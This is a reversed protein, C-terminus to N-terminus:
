RLREVCAIPAVKNLDIEAFASRAVRLDGLPSPSEHGTSPDVVIANVSLFIADICHGIDTSFVEHLTRLSIQAAVHRYLHSRDEEARELETIEDQQKNYRYAQVAPILARPDPIDMRM